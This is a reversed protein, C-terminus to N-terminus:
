NLENDNSVGKLPREQEEHIVSMNNVETLTIKEESDM